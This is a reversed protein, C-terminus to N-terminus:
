GHGRSLATSRRELRDMFNRAPQVLRSSYTLKSRLAEVRRLYECLMERMHMRLAYETTEPKVFPNGDRDGGIWSGFQLLSPVEIDSIATYENSPSIWTATFARCRRFFASASIFCVTVSKMRQRQTQSARVEDTKWLM